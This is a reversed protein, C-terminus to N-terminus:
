QCRTCNQLPMSRLCENGCKIVRVHIFSNFYIINRLEEEIIVSFIHIGM